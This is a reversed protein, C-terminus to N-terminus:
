PMVEPTKVYKEGHRVGCHGCYGRMGQQEIIEQLMLITKQREKIEARLKDVQSHAYWFIDDSITKESLAM